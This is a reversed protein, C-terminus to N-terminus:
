AANRGGEGDRWESGDALRYVVIDDGIVDVQEGPVLDPTFRHAPCGAQMEAYSLPRDWKACRWAPGANPSSHLCTRCNARAFQGEHCIAKARCWACAFAAKSAPDEHARAPVRNAEVLREVRAVLALCYVPDYDVREVHIADDNKNAALYLGRTMGTGHMYLQIQAFHDPKGDRLGKKLLEKFSRDNHSKCEVVHWTKPAEPVGLAAGDLKGRLHGGALEVSFQKGTTEDIEHVECGIARLDELLWAEYQHGTRFRRERRGEPEEPPAAWRFAYWIARDCEKAVGSMPVGAGDGGRARAEIARDMALATHSVPAPLDAM